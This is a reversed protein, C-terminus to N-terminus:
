RRPWYWGFVIASITGATVPSGVPISAYCYVTQGSLLRINNIGPVSFGATLSGYTSNVNGLDPAFRNAVKLRWLISGSFDTFGTGVFNPVFRTIVGDWGEPVLFSGLLTDTGNYPNPFNDPATLAFGQELKRANSPMVEWPPQDWIPSGLEPVRCCSKLGGHNKIWTWWRSERVLDMDWYGPTWEVGQRQLLPNNRRLVPPLMQDPILAPQWSGGPAGGIPAPVQLGDPYSGPPLSIQQGFPGMTVVQGPLSSPSTLVTPAGAPVPVGVSAPNSGTYQVEPTWETPLPMNVLDGFAM